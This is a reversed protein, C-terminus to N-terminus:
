SRRRAYRGHAAAVRGDLEMLLLMSSLVEVTLGSRQALVDIGVPDHDLALWLRGYEPDEGSEPTAASEPEADTLPTLRHRLADALQSAQPALAAVIEAATEVLAAGDRILRHCGRALPNHISGPLAFVERGAEAAQRATILAGSRLAAEVVLTGLSLGALIRNRQPFHEQQAKTGPPYEGVIAGQAAIAGALARHKAPYVLDPGTGIVALTPAELDLAARHAAGDIGDALGSTIAFGARALTRAFDRANDLGGPTPNRSGVVAVQARWLLDPDGRVFLAAPPAPARALLIPFDESDFTLLHHAPEALWALDQELRAADPARLWAVAAEPLSGLRGRRALEVTQEPDAELALLARLRAGGLGPARLLTLWALTRPEAAPLPM